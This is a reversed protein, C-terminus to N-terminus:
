ETRGAVGWLLDFGEAPHHLLPDSQQLFELLGQGRGPFSNITDGAGPTESCLGASWNTAQVGFRLNMSERISFKKLLSRDCDNIPNIRLTNEGPTLPPVWVPPSIVPPRTTALYAVIQGARNTLATLGSGQNPNGALNVSARDGASDSNLNSDLGSQVTAFEPSEYICTATYQWNGLL